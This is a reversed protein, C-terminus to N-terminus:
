NSLCYTKSYVAAGANKGLINPNTAVGTESLHRCFDKELLLNRIGQEFTKAVAVDATILDALGTDFGRSLTSDIKDPTVPEFEFLYELRKHRYSNGPIAEPHRGIIRSWATYSHDSNFRLHHAENTQYQNNDKETFKDKLALRELARKAMHAQKLALVPETYFCEMNSFGMVFRFVSGIHNTYYKGNQTFVRPQELGTVLCWTHGQHQEACYDWMVSDAVGMAFKIVLAKNQLIWDENTVIQKKAEPDFRPRATIKTAPDKHNDQMWKVYQTSNWPEYQDNHFIVIEDIHLNNRVFVNYITHSDTGGSWLLVIREYKNRLNIAHQDMLQEFSETPEKTWDLQDYEDTRCVFEIPQKTTFSRHKALIDNFIVESGVRYYIPPIV